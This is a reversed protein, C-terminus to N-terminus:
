QALAHSARLLALGTVADDIGGAAATRLAEAFPMRHLAITEVEEWDTPVRSVERALFLHVPTEVISPVEYAIGLADWRAAVIGLEERTERQAAALASEGPRAGGKVIELVTRDIAFRAQRTLLVDDGDVVVVGSARQPIVLAHEGARGNPHVIEHAELRLWPNEYLVRHSRRVFGTESTM